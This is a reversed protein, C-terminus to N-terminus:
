SRSRRLARSRRAPVGIWKRGRPRSSPPLRGDHSHPRDALERASGDKVEVLFDCSELTSLRHAIMFTTRKAMLRTMADLIGAETQNDVSSTPEDLILIPADKLFARALSVRQREGGSLRMGREGVLTDYGDPLYTIFDHAGASRAAQVVENHTSGPKAYAINDGISASFLVPEQLMITFQKRLDKLRYDRLDRGDLLVSGSDPDYFRNLLSVLTTKGAGTEGVLGVSSGAPVSLSVNRLVDVGAEYGFTVDRLELRGTARELPLAGPRDQVDPIEDLLDFAREASALQRQLSASRRSITRLPGYLQGVYSVVLLLSGLTLRGSQVGRMGVYLVVATGLATTGNVMLEFFREGLTLKIRAHVGEASKDVFRQREDEERGFATVVRVSTLVEQVVKLASSELRKVQKYKPRMRLQFTRAYLFLLPSILLAVLALQADISFVIVIMSVLTFGATIFPILSHVAIHQIAPADYQIRYISDATGRSDHFAFSLRQVHEILKSQFSLTLREGALTSLLSTLLSQLGSLLAVLVLLVAALILVSNSSQEVSAPVLPRLFGPLPETGLASDVAVALPVPGLLALPTALLSLLFLGVIHLRYPRAERLVRRILTFDSSRPRAAEPMTPSDTESM